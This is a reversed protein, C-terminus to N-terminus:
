NTFDQERIALHPYYEEFRALGRVQLTTSLDVHADKGLEQGIVRFWVDIRSVLQGLPALFTRYLSNRTYFEQPTFRRGPTALAKQAVEITEDRNLIAGSAFGMKGIVVEVTRQDKVLAGIEATSFDDKDAPLVKILRERLLEAITTPRLPPTLPPATSEPPHLPTDTQKSFIFPGQKELTDGVGGSLGAIVIMNATLDGLRAPLEGNRVIQLSEEALRYVDKVGRIIAVKRLDGTEFEQGAM